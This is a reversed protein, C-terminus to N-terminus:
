ANKNATRKRARFAAVSERQACAESCFRKQMNKSSDIFASRCSASACIGLRSAQFDCLVVALGMATTVALWRACGQEYPEFHLHLPGDHWRIRPTAGNSQLVENLLTAAGQEDASAQEFVKRLTARLARVEIMTEEDMTWRDLLDRYIHKGVEYQQQTVEDVEAPPLAEEHASLFTHLDAENALVDHGSVAHLTNVLDVALRVPRSTYYTFDVQSIAGKRM